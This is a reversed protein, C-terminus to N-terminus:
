SKLFTDIYKKLDAVFKDHNQATMFAFETLNEKKGTKPNYLFLATGYAEFAEAKKENAKDDVNVLTFIVGSYSKLVERTLEEIKNCTTCRHESHFQIVELKATAKKDTTKANQAQSNCSAFVLAILLIATSLIRTKM